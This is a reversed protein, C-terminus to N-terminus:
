PRLPDTDQSDGYILAPRAPGGCAYTGKAQSIELAACGCGFSHSNKAVSKVSPCLHRPHCPHKDTYNKAPPM